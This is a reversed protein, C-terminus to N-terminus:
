GTTKVKRVLATLLGLSVGKLALREVASLVPLRPDASITWSIETGAQTAVLKVEGSYNKFPVGSLARYGLRSPAEFATIEEIIAPMPGPAAVRRVAGVGNPESTGPKTLTVKIGPGWSSMGEHDALLDWVHQVPVSVVATSTAHM